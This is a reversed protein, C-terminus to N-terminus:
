IKAEALGTEYTLIGADVFNYRWKSNMIKGVVDVINEQKMKRMLARFISNTIKEVRFVPPYGQEAEMAVIASSYEGKGLTSHPIPGVIVAAYKSSYRLKAYNYKQSGYYDLFFEFRDSTFGLSKAVGTLHSKNTRSDGLVLIKGYIKPDYFIDGSILQELDMIKLWEVLKGSRNLTVIIIELIGSEFEKHLAESLEYLQRNNLM